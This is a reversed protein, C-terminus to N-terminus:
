RRRLSVLAGLGLLLGAPLAGVNCSITSGVNGVGHITVSQQDEGLRATLQREVREDYSYTYLDGTEDEPDLGEIVWEAQLGFVEAGDDTWGRLVVNLVDGDNADDESQAELSLDVIDESSVVNLPLQHVVQGATGVAIDYTGVEFPATLVLIEERGRAYDRLDFELDEPGSVELAKSGYLERGDAVYRVHWASETSSIVNLEQAPDTDLEALITSRPTLEISEPAFVEVDIQDMVEGDQTITLTTPGTEDFTATWDVFDQDAEPPERTFTVGDAQLEWSTPDGWFRDASVRFSVEGGHVYAAAVEDNPGRRFLRLAASDDDVDVVRDSCAFAVLLIMHDGYAIEM